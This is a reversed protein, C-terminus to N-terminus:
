LRRGTPWALVVLEQHWDLVCLRVRDDRKGYLFVLIRVQHAVRFNAFEILKGFHTYPYEVHKPGPLARWRDERVERRLAALCKVDVAEYLLQHRDTEDVGDTM